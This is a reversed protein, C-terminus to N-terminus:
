RTEEMWSVKMQRISTSREAAQIPLMVAGDRPTPATSSRVIEATEPKIAYRTTFRAGLHEDLQVDLHTLVRWEAVRDQLDWFLPGAVPHYPPDPLRAALGGGSQQSM